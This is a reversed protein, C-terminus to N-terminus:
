GVPHVRAPCERRATRSSLVPPSGRRRRRRRSCRRRRKGVRILAAEDEVWALVAAIAREHAAEIVRRTEGDGLAWLLTLTPQLRFVLDFGTVKVRRGLAGARRAAAPVDSFVCGPTTLEADCRLNATSPSDWNVNPQTPITDVPGSGAM